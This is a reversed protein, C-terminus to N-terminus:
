NRIDQLFMRTPIEFGRGLAVAREYAMGALPFFQSGQLNGRESYTIEDDSGRAKRPDQIAQELTVMRDPLLIGHGRKGSRKMTFSTCGEPDARYTIFEDDIQMTPLGFPAPARGFRMYRDVKQLTADDPRGSGGGV